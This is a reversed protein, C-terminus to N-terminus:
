EVILKQTQKGVRIIYLGKGLDSIDITLSTEVGSSM